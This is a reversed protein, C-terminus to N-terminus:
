IIRGEPRISESVVIAFDPCNYECIKCGLCRESYRPVPVRYGHENIINELVFVKTPCLNICLLCEKCRKGIVTISYVKKRLYSKSDAINRM